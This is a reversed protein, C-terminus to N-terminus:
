SRRSPRTRRAPRWRRARRFAARLRPHSQSPRRVIAAQISIMVMMRWTARPRPAAAQVELLLNPPSPQLHSPLPQPPTPTKLRPHARSAAPAPLRSVLRRRRYSPVDQCRLLMPLPARPPWPRPTGRSVRVCPAPSAQCSARRVPLPQDSHGFRHCRYRGRGAVPRSRGYQGHCHRSASRARLYCSSFPCAALISRTAAQRRSSRSSPRRSRKSPLTM